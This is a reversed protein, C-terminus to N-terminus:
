LTSSVSINSNYINYIFKKKKLLKQGNKKKIQSDGLADDLKLYISSIIISPYNSKPFLYSLLLMMFCISTISMIAPIESGVIMLIIVSLVQYNKKNFSRPNLYHRVYM